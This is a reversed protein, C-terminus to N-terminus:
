TAEPYCSHTPDVWPWPSVGAKHWRREKLGELRACQACDCLRVIACNCLQFIACNCMQVISFNCLQVTSCEFVVTLQVLSYVFLTYWTRWWKWEWCISPCHDNRVALIDQHGLNRLFKTAEKIGVSGQLSMQPGHDVHGPLHQHHLHQLRHRHRHETWHPFHETLLAPQAAALLEQHDGYM